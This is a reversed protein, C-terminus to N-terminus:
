AFTAVLNAECRSTRDRDCGQNRSDSRAEAERTLVGFADTDTTANTGHDGPLSAQSNTTSRSREGFRDSFRGFGQQNCAVRFVEPVERRSESVCLAPSVGRVRQTVYQSGIALGWVLM